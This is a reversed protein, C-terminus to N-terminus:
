LPPPFPLCVPNVVLSPFMCRPVCPLLGVASHGSVSAAKGASKPLFPTLFVVLIEMAVDGFQSNNFNGAGNKEDSGRMGEWAPNNAPTKSRTQQRQPRKGHPRTRRLRSSGYGDLGGWVAREWPAQDAAAVGTPDGVRRQNQRVPRRPPADRQPLSGGLSLLAWCSPRCIGCLM